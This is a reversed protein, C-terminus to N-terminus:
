TTREVPGSATSRIPVGPVGPVLSLSRGTIVVSATTATRTATVSPDCLWNGATSALAQAARAQGQGATGNLATALRLGEQAALQTVNRTHFLVGGQVILFIMALMVPFLVALETTISGRDSWASRVWVQDQRDQNSCSRKSRSHLVPHNM